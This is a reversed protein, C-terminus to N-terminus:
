AAFLYDAIYVFFSWPLFPISEEGPFKVDHFIGNQTAFYAAPFYVALFFALFGALALFRHLTKM